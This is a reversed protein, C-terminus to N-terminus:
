DSFKQQIVWALGLCSDRFHAAYACACALLEALKAEWDAAKAQDLARWCFICCRHHWGGHLGRWSYRVRIDFLSPFLVTLSAAFPGCLVLPGRPLWLVVVFSGLGYPFWLLVLLSSLALPSYSEDKREEFVIM